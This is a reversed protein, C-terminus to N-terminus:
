SRTIVVRVIGGPDTIGNAVHTSAWSLVDGAAVVKNAATASLTIAKADFDSANVGNDFTLTAVATTGNGAAGKNTLTVSRHNTAAGTIDAGPIYEVATVTGAFEATGIITTLDNGATGVPQVYTEIVQTAPAKTAVDLTKHSYPDTM